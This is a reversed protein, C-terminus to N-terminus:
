SAAGRRARAHALRYSQTGTEIILGAFTLRDIIFTRPKRPPPTPSDLAQRVTRRHVGHRAALERISLEDRRHDRRIAEYVQM